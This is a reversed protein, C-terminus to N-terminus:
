SLAYEAASQPDGCGCFGLMGSCVLDEATEYFLKGMEYGYNTKYDELKM